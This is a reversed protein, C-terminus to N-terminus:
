IGFAPTSELIRAGLLAGIPPPTILDLGVDLRLRKIGSPQGFRLQFRNYIESTSKVRDLRADLENFLLVVRVVDLFDIM